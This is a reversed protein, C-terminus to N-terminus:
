STLAVLFVCLSVAFCVALTIQSRIWYPSKFHESTSDRDITNIEITPHGFRRYWGTVVVDADGVFSKAKQWGWRTLWASMFLKRQAIIIGTEDEFVLNSSWWLGGEARTVFKGRLTCPIPSVHSSEVDSLLDIVKADAFSKRPYVLFMRVFMGAFVAALGGSLLLPNVTESSLFALWVAVGVLSPFAYILWEQAFRSWNPKEFKGVQFSNKSEPLAMLASVRRAILPHTSKLEGYRAWANKLDWASVLSFAENTPRGDPGCWGAVSDFSAVPAIGWAGLSGLGFAPRRVKTKDKSKAQAKIAEDEQTKYRALGYGIKVLASALADPDHVTEASVRDAMFERIRSFALAGLQAVWYIAYAVVGALKTHGNNNQLLMRACYYIVLVIAQALTMAIFDRNRIHGFEHAVVARLEQEDLTELLGRSVVVRADKVFRGFTFANPMGSDVIGFTPNGIKLEAATAQYWEAFEPSVASPETWRIKFIARIFYPSLVFQLVVIFLSLGVTAPMLGPPAKLFLEAIVGVTILLTSLVALALFSSIWLKRM